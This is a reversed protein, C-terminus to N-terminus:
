GGEKTSLLTANGSCALGKTKKDEDSLAETSWCGERVNHNYLKLWM